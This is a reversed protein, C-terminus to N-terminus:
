IKYSRCCVCPCCILILVEWSSAVAAFRVHHDSRFRVLMALYGIVVGRIQEPCSKDWFQNSLQEICQLSVAPYTADDPVNPGHYFIFGTFIASLLDDILMKISQLRVGDEVIQPVYKDYVLAANSILNVLM